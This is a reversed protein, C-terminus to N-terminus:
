KELIQEVKEYRAIIKKHIIKKQITKLIAELVVCSLFTLIFQLWIGFSWFIVTFIILEFFYRIIVFLDIQIKM